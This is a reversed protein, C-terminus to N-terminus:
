YGCFEDDEALQIMTARDLGRISGFTEEVIARASRKRMEDSPEESSEELLLSALELREEIPLKRAEELVAMLDTSM